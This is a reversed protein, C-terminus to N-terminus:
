SEQATSSRPEFSLSRPSAAGDRLAADIAGLSASDGAATARRHSMEQAELGGEPGVAIALPGSARWRRRAACREVDLLLGRGRSPCRRAHRRGVRRRAHTPCGRAAAVARAREAHARAGERSVSRGRRAAVRKAVARFVGPAVRYGAARRVERRGSAHSRPRRDPRHSGAASTAADRRSPEVIWWWAAAKRREAITGWRSAGTATSCGCSTPWRGARRVRVHHAAGDDLAVREGAVCRGRPSSADSGRAITASWWMGGRGGSSRALRRRALAAGDGRARRGPHRQPDSPRRPSAVHAISPLLEILVSSIINAFVVRVPAVLPLLAGCRRRDGDRSRAVGNRAVNEEANGIADHDIEIAVVRAAGLKAAAIALM